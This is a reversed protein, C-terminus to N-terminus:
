KARELLQEAADLEIDRQTRWALWCTVCLSLGAALFFLGSTWHEKTVGGCVLLVNTTCVFVYLYPRMRALSPQTSANQGVTSRWQVTGRNGHARQSNVAHNQDYPERKPTAAMVDVIIDEADRIDGVPRTKRSKGRKHPHWDPLLWGERTRRWGNAHLWKAEAYRTLSEWFRIQVFELLSLNANSAGIRRHLLNYWHPHKEEFETESVGTDPDVYREPGQDRNRTRM